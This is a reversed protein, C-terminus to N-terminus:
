QEEPEAQISIQMSTEQQMAPWLKVSRRPCCYKELHTNRKYHICSPFKKKRADKKPKEKKDLWPKKGKYSLSSSEKARAQFAGKPHEELRNARMQEFAYLSNVLESLSIASLDMSDELSSIKSKFKKHLTTIVKEVVRSESFDDSLLRINNVIAIIRDSYKKITESERM